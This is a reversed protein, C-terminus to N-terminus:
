LVEVVLERTREPEELTILHGCDEIVFLESDPAREHARESVAVPIVGDERGHVFRVPVELDGLRPSYDTRYGERTVEAARLKRFGSGVGPRDLEAVIRDITAESVGDDHCLANVSSAVFGRSRRMLALSLYNIVQVKALLWSLTGNPLGGGLAFPALAVLREVQDPAQLGLGVAVGGGMSIGAVVPTIELEALFAAVTDVHDPVGWDGDPVSSRGYGPLDPVIVRAEAALPEILEGWSIDAADIIGGHLLVLPDADPDGATLYHLRQGNATVTADEVGDM